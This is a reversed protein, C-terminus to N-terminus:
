FPSGTHEGSLTHSAKRPYWYSRCGDNTYCSSTRCGPFLSSISDGFFSLEGASSMSPLSPQLHAPADSSMDIGELAFDRNCDPVPQFRIVGVSLAIYPEVQATPFSLEQRTQCLAIGAYEEDADLYPSPDCFPVKWFALM